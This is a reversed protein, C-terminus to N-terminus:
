DSSKILAEVQELSIPIVVTGGLDAEDILVFNIPRNSDWDNLFGAFEGNRLVWIGAHMEGAGPLDALTSGHSDFSVIGTSISNSVEENRLWFAGGMTVGTPLSPVPSLQMETRFGAEMVVTKSGSNISITKPQFGQATLLLQTGGQDMPINALGDMDTSIWRNSSEVGLRYVRVGKLPLGFKDTVRLDCTHLLQTLDLPNIRPDSAQGPLVPQLDPLTFIVDVYADDYVALSGANSTLGDLHFTGDGRLNHIFTSREGNEDLFAVSLDAVKMGLPPIISGDLTLGLELVFRIGQTDRAVDLEIPLGSDHMSIRIIPPAKATQYLFRGFEDTMIFAKFAKQEPPNPESFTIFVGPVPKGEPDVVIGSLYPGSTKLKVDGLDLVGLTLGPVEVQVQNCRVNPVEKERLVFNRNNRLASIQSPNLPYSIIGLTNTSVLIEPVLWGGPDLQMWLQQDALPKGQLSLVRFRLTTTRSLPRATLMAKQGEQWPGPGFARTSAMPDALPAAAALDLGLGVFPFEAIGNHTFAILGGSPYREPPQRGKVFGQKPDPDVALLVPMSGTVLAQKEDMVRVQLPGLPPLTLSHTKDHAWQLLSIGIPERLHMFPRIELQEGNPLSRWYALRTFTAVGESDTLVVSGMQFQLRAETVRVLGVPIDPLAEGRHDRVELSEATETWLELLRLEKYHHLNWGYLNASRAVVAQGEPYHKVWAQGQANSIAPPSFREGIVEPAVGQMFSQHVEPQLEPEGYPFTWVKANAVPQGTVGDRVVILIVDDKVPSALEAVQEDAAIKEFTIRQVSDSPAEDDAEAHMALPAGELGLEDVTSSQKGNSEM